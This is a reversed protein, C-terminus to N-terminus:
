CGRKGATATTAGGGSTFPPEPDRSNESELAPTTGGGGSTFPRVCLAPSAPAYPPAAPAALITGGGGDTSPWAPRAREPASPELRSAFTIPGGGDICAPAPLRPRGAM